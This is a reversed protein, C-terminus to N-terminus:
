QDQQLCITGTLPVNAFSGTQLNLVGQDFLQGTAGAFRETGGTVTLNDTFQGTTANLNGQDQLTVTGQNTTIVLTGVYDGQADIFTASFQTTGHLLGSKITGATSTPSTLTASISTNINHDHCGPSAGLASPVDRRELEEVRLLARRSTM